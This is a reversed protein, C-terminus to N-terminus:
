KAESKEATIPADCRELYYGYLEALFREEYKSGKVINNELQHRVESDSMVPTNRISARDYGLCLRWYFTNCFISGAICPILIVYGWWLTSSIESGVGSIIVSVGNVTAYIKHRRSHKKLKEQVETPISKKARAVAQDHVHAKRFMYISWAANVLGYAANFSNGLYGSMVNSALFVSPIDGKIAMLCGTGVLIGAIAMFIDLLMRDIVEWGLERFNIDLWAQEIPLLTKECRKRNLYAREQRLFIINRRCRALDWFAFSTSLIAISGGLGMLVQAFIPLPNEQWVNAPFDLANFFDLFGAMPLLSNRYIGYQMDDRTPIDEGNGESDEGVGEPPPQTHADHQENPEQTEHPQEEAASIVSSKRHGISTGASASGTDRNEPNAITSETGIQPPIIETEEEM